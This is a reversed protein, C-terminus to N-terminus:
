RYMSSNALKYQGELARKTYNHLYCEGLVQLVCLCKGIQWGAVSSFIDGLVFVPICWPLYKLQFSYVLQLGLLVCFSFSSKIIHKLWNHSSRSCYCSYWVPMKLKSISIQGEHNLMNFQAIAPLFCISTTRQKKRDEDLRPQVRCVSCNPLTTHM